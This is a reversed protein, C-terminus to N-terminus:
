KREKGRVRLGETLALRKPVGPRRLRAVVEDANGERELMTNILRGYTRRGHRILGDYTIGDTHRLTEIRSADEQVWALAPYAGALYRGPELLVEWPIVRDVNHLEVEWRGWPSDPEGRQKGKEYVRLLKGNKRRGVYFTRGNGKPDIWDGDASHSPKRGGANFAGAQYLAVAEDVSHVGEFDDMAGDWRTLRAQLRERFLEVFVPWDPVLACGDSGISVFATGRQEGFAFLTKGHEFEFSHTYGHLGRGPRERMVGFAGHTADSFADFFQGAPDTGSVWYTVNVWDTLAARPNGEVRSSSEISSSTEVRTVLRTANLDNVM